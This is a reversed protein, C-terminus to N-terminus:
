DYLAYLTKFINGASFSGIMLRNINMLKNKETIEKLEHELHGMDINGDSDEDIQIVEVYSERWPLINSNNNTVISERDFFTDM